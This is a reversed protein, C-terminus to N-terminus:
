LSGNNVIVWDVAGTLSQNSNSNIVFSTTTKDEVTWFRGDLSSIISVSYNTSPMTEPLTVTAKRPTGSFATNPSSGSQINLTVDGTQGAVSTVLESNDIKEWETGNFIAWDKVNWVNIGNLNTTGAVDVVYYGGRQGISSQLFPDNLSADWTGLYELVGLRRSFKELFAM